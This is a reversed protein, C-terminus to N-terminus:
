FPSHVHKNTKTKNEARSAVRWRHRMNMIYLGLTREVVSWRHQRKALRVIKGIFDESLFNSLVRPNEGAQLQDTLIHCIYHSKPRMKYALERQELAM